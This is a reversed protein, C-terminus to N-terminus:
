CLLASCRLSHRALTLMCSLESASCWLCGAWWCRKALRRRRKWCPRVLDCGTVSAGKAHKAIYCSNDGVCCGIDLVSCELLCGPSSKLSASAGLFELALPCALGLAERGFPALGMLRGVAM